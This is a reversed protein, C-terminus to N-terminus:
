FIFKNLFLEPAQRCSKNANTDGQNESVRDAVQALHVEDIVFKVIKLEYSHTVVSSAASDCFVLPFIEEIIMEYFLFILSSEIKSEAHLAVIRERFRLTSTAFRSPRAAEFVSNSCIEAHM